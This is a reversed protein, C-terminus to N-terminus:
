YIIGKEFAYLALVILCVFLRMYFKMDYVKIKWKIKSFSVLILVIILTGGGCVLMPNGKPFDIVFGMLSIMSMSLGIFYLKYLFNTFGLTGLANSTEGEEIQDFELPIFAHLFYVIASLLSGTILVYGSETFKLIYLLFGSLFIVSSVIESRKIFIFHTLAFKTLNFKDTTQEM